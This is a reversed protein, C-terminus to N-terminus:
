TLDKEVIDRITNMCTELPRHGRDAAWRLSLIDGYGRLKKYKADFSLTSWTDPFIQEGDEDGLTIHFEDHSDKAPNYFYSGVTIKM